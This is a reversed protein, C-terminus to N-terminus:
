QQQQWFEGFYSGVMFIYAISSLAHSRFSLPFGEFSGNQRKVQQIPGNM